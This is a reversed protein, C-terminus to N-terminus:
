ETERSPPTPPADDDPHEVSEPLFVQPSVGLLRAIEYVIDIRPTAAGSYYRWIQRTSVALDPNQEELLAHILRPSLRHVEHSDVERLQVSEAIERFRRAFFSTAPHVDELPSPTPDDPDPLGEAYQATMHSVFGEAIGRISKM